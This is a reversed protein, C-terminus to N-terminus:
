FNFKNSLANWKDNHIHTKKHKKAIYMEDRYSRLLLSKFGSLTPRTGNCKSAFICRKAILIIHNLLLKNPFHEIVGVIVVKEHIFSLDINGDLFAKVNQWFIQSVPCNWMIHEITENEPCGFTCQPSPLLGMKYLKYNLPLINNIVKFQFERSKTDISTQFALKRARYIDQETLNYKNQLRFNSVPTEFKADVLIKYFHKSKIVPRQMIVEPIIVKQQVKIKFDESFTFTQFGNHKKVISVISQIRLFDNANIDFEEKLSRFTKSHMDATFIQHLFCLGKQLMTKFLLTKGDIRIDTNNWIIQERFPKEEKLRSIRRWTELVAKYFDPINMLMTNVDYNCNFLLLGGYKKLYYNLVHFWIQCNDEHIRNIWMVQQAQIASKLDIMKLGGKGIEQIMVNRKIRDPGKWLFDYFIKELESSVWLPTYISSFMYMFKSIGFTKLIQIKGILTLKRLKWLNLTKKLSNILERFKETQLMDSNNGVFTGLVKITSVTKITEPIPLPHNVTNDKSRPFDVNLVETKEKNCKLSSCEKFQDLINFLETISDSDICFACFDDAYLSLKFEKGDIQIGRIKNSTRIRIALTELAILFLYPSLPDGQRVGRKIPFYGTSTGKNLVCGEIDFYLTQVWRIFSPGFGFSKLACYLFDHDISDFAKQFDVSAIFGKKQETTLYFFMDHVNRIAECINRGKIFAHQDPSIIEDLVKIVRAALAKSCIKADVNLLSIPRYNQLHRKDKGPKLILTIVSQKQSNSLKINEYSYNLSALLSDSVLDWFEYYFEKTLGDNGPSKGSPMECLVKYCEEKSLKGECSNKSADSLRKGDCNLFNRANATNLMVSQKSYLSRYFLNIQELIKYDTDIDVGDVTLKQISSKNKHQRELTLFFKNSKEGYETWIAKSRIVLGETIKNYYEDLARKADEYEDKTRDDVEYNVQELIEIKKELELRRAREFSAKSKSYKKSFRQIKFKLYDWQTMPNFDCSEVLWDSFNERLTICFVEDSCLSSNFKWYGGGFKENTIKVHIQVASHDSSVSPIISTNSVLDQHSLSILFYDLRSQVTLDQRRWTYQKCQPNRFRWIDCLDFDNLLSLLDSRSGTPYASFCLDKNFKDLQPNLTVNFDGGVIFITEGLNEDTNWLSRLKQWFVKQERINNPAYVNTLTVIQDYLQIKLMIYRGNEDSNMNLLDFNLGDRIFVLVGRALNTGHSFYFSGKMQCKWFLEVEKTSHTEQLFIIDVKQNQLYKFMKKRKFYDRLGCVNLSLVKLSM